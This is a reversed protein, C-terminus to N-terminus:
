RNHEILWQDLCEILEEPKATGTVGLQRVTISATLNAILAAEEPTGGSALTLIAAATVSDGAGTPDIEGIVHVGPVHICNDGDFILIGNESRTLFVPRGTRKTLLKGTEKVMKDDIEGTYDPSVAKVAEGQNPKLITNRFLGPRQRSDTWFVVNPYKEALGMLAERVTDTVAGCNAEDAQDVIILADLNPVVSKLAEILKDEIGAPLTERNKTDYREHEGELGEISIDRPKLYTPTHREEVKFLHSTDCGIGNLDKRLEYGEGDDGTFGITIVGQAGLSVMNSVVNGAAGPSHRIQVVQNAVKSTELSIEAYAPDFELYKDLFFDGLVAIRRSPFKSLLEQLRESNM